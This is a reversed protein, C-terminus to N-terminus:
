LQFKILVLVADSLCFGCTLEGEADVEMNGGAKERARSDDEEKRLAAVKKKAIMVRGNAKDLAGEIIEWRFTEIRIVDRYEGHAHPTFAWSIVDSPDVIQYQMLKDFVIRIMQQNRRWFEAAARLIDAKADSSSALSRLVILYREIANLFHSFSRAGIHLLSQVAISRVVSDVHVGGESADAINNKLTELFSNVDEPKARGRLLNLLQETSDRYPNGTFQYSFSVYNLFLHDPKRPDDYVFEPGPAEEPLAEAEPSRYPEPLTKGIRDYYALRIEM